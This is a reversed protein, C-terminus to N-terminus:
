VTPSTSPAQTSATEAVSSAGPAAHTGTMPEIAEIRYRRHGHETDLEVDEGTKKNLLKQAVPALYSIVHKEPESDWAGLITFAEPQQSDLDTLRVRTGISVVDTRVNSFDSGRARVLQTELEAKRRMLIKQM